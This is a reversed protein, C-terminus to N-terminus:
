SSNCGWCISCHRARGTEFVDTQHYDQHQGNLADMYADFRGLHIPNYGQIDYVTGVIARNNVGLASISPDNWRLTYPMPGGYVHQAYGISRGRNASSEQHLRDTPRTAAFYTDLDVTELRYAGTTQLADRIQVEWSARLDLVVLVM